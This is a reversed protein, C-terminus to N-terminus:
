SASPDLQLQHSRRPLKPVCRTRYEGVGCIGLVNVREILASTAIKRGGGAQRLKCAILAVAPGRVPIEAVTQGAVVLPVNDAVGFLDCPAYDPGAASDICGSYVEFAGDILNVVWYVAIGAAAYISKKFVRDRLLGSDSVEVVLVVDRPGPHHEGYDRPDGRVLVVDPEPESSALTIPEQSDVYWGDPIHRRLFTACCTRQLEAGHSKTMKTVIWGDLIEVPDDEDIIGTRLMEHYKEITWRWLTVTPAAAAAIPVESRAVLTEATEAISAMSHIGTAHVVKLRDIIDLVVLNVFPSGTM